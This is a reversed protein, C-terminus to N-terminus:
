IDVANGESLRGLWPSVLMTQSGGLAAALFRPRAGFSCRYISRIWCRGRAWCRKTMCTM